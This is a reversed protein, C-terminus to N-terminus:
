TLEREKFIGGKGKQTKGGFILFDAGEGRKVSFYTFCVSSLMGFKSLPQCIVASKKTKYSFPQLLQKKNIFIYM